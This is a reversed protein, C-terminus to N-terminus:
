LYVVASLNGEREWGICGVRYLKCIFLYCYFVFVSM